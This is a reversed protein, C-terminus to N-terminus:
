GFGVSGQIEGLFINTYKTISDMKSPFQPFPDCIFAKTLFSLLIWLEFWISGTLRPLVTNPLVKVPTQTSLQLFAMWSLYSAFFNMNSNISLKESHGFTEKFSKNNRILFCFFLVEPFLEWNLSVKSFFQMSLPNAAPCTRCFNPVYSDSFCRLVSGKFLISTESPLSLELPERILLDTFCFTIFGKTYCCLRHNLCCLM